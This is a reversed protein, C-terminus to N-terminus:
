DKIKLVNEIQKTQKAENKRKRTKDPNQPMELVVFDSTIKDQLIQKLPFVESKVSGISFNSTPNKTM